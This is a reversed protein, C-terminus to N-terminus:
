QYLLNDFMLLNFLLSYRVPDCHHYFDNKIASSYTIPGFKVARLSCLLQDSMEVAASNRPCPGPEERGKIMSHKTDSYLPVSKKAEGGVRDRVM